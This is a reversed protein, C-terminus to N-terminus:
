ILIQKARTKLHKYAKKFAISNENLKEMVENLHQQESKDLLNTIKPKRYYIWIKEADQRLIKISCDYIEGTPYENLNDILEKVTM